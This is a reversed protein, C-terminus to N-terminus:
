EKERVRYSVALSVRIKAKGPTLQITEGEGGGGLTKRMPAGAAAFARVNNREDSESTDYHPQYASIELSTPDIGLITTEQQFLAKSKEWADTLAARHLANVDKVKFTPNAVAFDHIDKVPLSAFREYIDSVMEMTDTKWTATYTATYGVIEYTEDTKNWHREVGTSRDVRLSDEVVRM